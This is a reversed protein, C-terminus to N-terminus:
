RIAGAPPHRRTSSKSIPTYAKPIERATRGRGDLVPLDCHDILRADGEFVRAETTDAPRPWLFFAVVFLVVPVATAGALALLIRKM